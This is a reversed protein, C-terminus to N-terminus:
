SRVKRLWIEQTAPDIDLTYERRRPRTAPGIKDYRATVVVLDKSFDEDFSTIFIHDFVKLNIKDSFQILDRKKIIIRITYEKSPVKVMTPQLVDIRNIIKIIANNLADNSKCAQECDCYFSSFLLKMPQNCKTCNM